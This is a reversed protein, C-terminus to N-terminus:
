EFEEFNEDPYMEILRENLEKTLKNADAVSYSVKSDGLSNWLMSNLTGKYITRSFYFDYILNDKDFSHDEDYNELWNVEDRKHDFVGAVVVYRRWKNESEQDYCDVTWELEYGDDLHELALDKATQILEWNITTNNLYSESNSEKFSKYKSLYRM